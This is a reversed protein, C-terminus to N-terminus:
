SVTGGCAGDSSVADFTDAAEYMMKMMKIMQRFEKRSMKGDLNTDTLAFISAVFFEPSVGESDTSADSANSEEQILKISIAETTAVMAGAALAFINILKM